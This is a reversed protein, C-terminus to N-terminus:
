APPSDEGTITITGRISIREVLARVQERVIKSAAEFTFSGGVQQLELGDISKLGTNGKATFSGGVDALGFGKFDVLAACAEISIDQVFQLAAFGALSALAVENVRLKGEVVELRTLDLTTLAPLASLEIREASALQPAALRALGRNDEVFLGGLERLGPLQLETLSRNSEIVISRASTFSPLAITHLSAEHSVELKGDVSALAPLELATLANDEITLAGASSLERLAGVSVLARNARITIPYGSTALHGLGDLGALDPNGAILISGPARTMADLGFLDALRDNALISLDGRGLTAIPTLDSLIDNGQVLYTGGVTTLKDLGDLTALLPNGAVIVHGTVRELKSLGLIELTDNNAIALDGDICAVDNVREADESTAVTVLGDLVKGDECALTKEFSCLYTTTGIEDDDVEHDHNEDLGSHIALGGEACNEGPSESEVRARTEPGEFTTCASLIVLVVALRM